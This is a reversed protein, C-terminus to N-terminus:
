QVVVSEACRYKMSRVTRSYKTEGTIAGLEICLSDM